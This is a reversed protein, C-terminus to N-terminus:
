NLFLGDDREVIENNQPTKVYSSVHIVGKQFFYNLSHNFYYKANDCRTRRISMGYQKKVM